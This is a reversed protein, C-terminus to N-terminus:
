AAEQTHSNQFVQMPTLGNLAANPKEENYFKVFKELSSKITDLSKGDLKNARAYRLISRHFREVKGNHAPTRPKILYHEIREQELLKEFPAYREEKKRKANSRSVFLYTFEVGNDTQVLRPKGFVKILKKLGIRAEETSKELCCHIFGRRSCCDIGTVAFVKNGNDDEIKLGVTDMQTRDLPKASAYRKTHPNTKKPRYRTTLGERAFINDVTSHAIQKGTQQHYIHSVVAGGTDGTRKRIECLKKVTQQDTRKPSVRCGRPRNKLSTLDCDSAKLKKLWDYFTKHCVGNQRCGYRINKAALVAILLGAKKRIQQDRVQSLKEKIKKRISSYDKM